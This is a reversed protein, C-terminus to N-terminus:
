KIVGAKRLQEDANGAEFLPSGMKDVVSSAAQWAQNVMGAMSGAANAFEGVMRPSSAALTPMTLGGSALHGAGEALALGRATLGRPLPSSLTQGAIAYPLTPEHEALVEGIKKRAGFNSQVNDRMTSQLKRLATDSSTKEGLSMTKTADRVGESAKQYDAMTEAYAPAQQVIQDKIVNYVNDAVLRSRTGPMTESRIEGVAQKLADLGEATHFEAPDLGKWKKFLEAIQTQTELVQNSLPIGKFSGINAAKDVADEIPGLALITDDGRVGQMGKKYAAGREEKMSGIASKALEVPENMDRTGRMQGKFVENADGGEFGARAAARISDAGAGTTTGLVHSVVPEGLKAGAIVGRRGLNAPAAAPILMSADAVFGVPDTAITQKLASYSGYRDELGKLAADLIPKTEARRADLSDQYAKLTEPGAMTAAMRTEPDEVHALLASALQGISKATEIPHRIAHYTGEVLHAASEPVHRVASIAVDGLSPDIKNMLGLPGIDNVPSKPAPEIRAAEKSVPTSAARGMVEADSLLKPAASQGMVDADSLLDAM